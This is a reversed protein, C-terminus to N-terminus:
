VNGEVEKEERKRRRTDMLEGKEKGGQLRLSMELTTEAGSNNEETSKKENM